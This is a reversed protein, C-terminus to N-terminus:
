PVNNIILDRSPHSGPDRGGQSSRELYTGVPATPYSNRCITTQVVIRVPVSYSVTTGTCYHHLLGYEQSTNYYMGPIRNNYTYRYSAFYYSTLQLLQAAALFKFHRPSNRGEDRARGRPYRYQVICGYPAARVQQQCSSTELLTM